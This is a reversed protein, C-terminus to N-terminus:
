KYKLKGDITDLNIWTQPNIDIPLYIHLHEAKLKPFLYIVRIQSETHLQFAKVSFCRFALFIKFSSILQKRYNEENEREAKESQSQIFHM